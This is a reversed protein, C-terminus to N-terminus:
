QKRTGKLFLVIDKFCSSLMTSEYPKKPANITAIDQATNEKKTTYEVNVGLGVLKTVAELYGENAAVMLPSWGDENRLDLNAGCKHLLELTSSQNYMAAWNAATRGSKSQLNVAAGKEILLSILENKGNQALLSLAMHSDKTRANPNAGAELLAKVIEEDGKTIAIILLSEKDENEVDPNVGEALLKKALCTHGNQYASLLAAESFKASFVAGASLLKDVVELRQKFYAGTVANWGDNNCIDALAGHKLLFDVVKVRGKMSAWILPTWGNANRINVEAGSEVMVEALDFYENDLCLLLASSMQKPRYNPNAGQQLLSKAIDLYGLDIALRLPNHDKHNIDFGPLEMILTALNALGYNLTLEFPTASQGDFVHNILDPNEGLISLCKDQQGMSLADFLQEIM